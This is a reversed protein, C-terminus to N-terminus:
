RMVTKGENKLIEEPTGGMMRIEEIFEDDPLKYTKKEQPFVGPSPSASFILQKPLPLDVQKLYISLELAVKSGLSYGFFVFPIDLKESIASGITEVLRNMDTLALENLRMARGPLQVTYVEIDKPFYNLLCDFVFPGGGAFPFLFLRKKPKSLVNKSIFWKDM